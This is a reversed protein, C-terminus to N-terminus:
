HQSTSCTECSIKRRIKSERAHEVVRTCFLRRKLSTKLLARKARPPTHGPSLQLQASAPNPHQTCDGGMPMGTVITDIAPLYIQYELSIPRQGGPPRAVGRQPTNGARHTPPAHQAQAGRGGVAHAQIGRPPHTLHALINRGTKTIRSSGDFRGVWGSRPCCGAAPHQGGGLHASVM